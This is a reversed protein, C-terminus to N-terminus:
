APPLVLNIGAAHLCAQWHDQGNIAATLGPHETFAYYGHYREPLLRAIHLMIYDTYASLERQRLRKIPTPFDPLMFPRGIHVDMRTRKLRKANYFLKETNVLGIPVIPVNAQAALWATGNRPKIIQAIPSRTGEPAIALIHGQSLGDLADQIALRDMKNRDVYIGGIRPVVKGIIPLKQWSNGILFRLPTLPLTILGLVSDVMSVHNTVVIYPGTKPLNVRGLVHKRGLLSHMAINTALRSGRYWNLNDNM